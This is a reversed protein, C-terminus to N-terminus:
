HRTHLKHVVINGRTVGDAKVVAGVRSPITVLGLHEMLIIAARNSQVLLEPFIPM